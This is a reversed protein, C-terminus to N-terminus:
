SSSDVYAILVNSNGDGLNFYCYQGSGMDAAQKFCFSIVWDNGNLNFDASSAASLYKSSAFQACNDTIGAVYTLGGVNTLTNSGKSDASNGSSEDFKWFAKHGADYISITANNASWTDSVADDGMIKAISAKSIGLSKAVDGWDISNIKAIAM